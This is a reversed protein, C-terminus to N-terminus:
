QGKLNQNARSTPAAAARMGMGVLYAAVDSLEETQGLAKQATRLRKMDKSLAYAQDAKENYETFGELLQKAYMNNRAASDFLQQVQPDKGSLINLTAQLTANADDSRYDYDDYLAALGSNREIGAKIIQYAMSAAIAQADIANGGFNNSAQMTDAIQRKVRNFDQQIENLEATTLQRNGRMNIIEKGILEAVERGELTSSQEKNLPKGDSGTITALTGMDDPVKGNKLTMAAVINPVLSSNGVEVGDKDLMSGVASLIAANGNSADAVANNVYQTLEAQAQPSYDNSAIIEDFRDVSQKQKMAEQRKKITQALKERDARMSQLQTNQPAMTTGALSRLPNYTPGLGAMVMAVTSPALEKQQSPAQTAAAIEQDLQYLKWQDNVLAKQEDSYVSTGNITDLAYQAEKVKGEALNTAVSDVTDQIAQLIQQGREAPIVKKEAARKYEAAARNLSSDAYRPDVTITKANGYEDWTQYSFTDAPTGFLATDIGQSQLWQMQKIASDTISSVLASKNPIDGAKSAAQIALDMAMQAGQPTGYLSPPIHMAINQSSSAVYNNFNKTDLEERAKQRVAQTRAAQLARQSASNLLPDVEGLTYADTRIPRGLADTVQIAAENARKTGAVDAAAVAANIEAQYPDMLRKSVFLNDKNAQENLLIRDTTNLKELTSARANPFASAIYPMIDNISMPNNKDYAMMMARTADADATDRVTNIISDLGSNMSDSAQKLLNVANAGYGAMSNLSPISPKFELAM